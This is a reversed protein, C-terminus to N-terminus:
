RYSIERLIRCKVPGSGWAGVALEVLDGQQLRSELDCGATTRSWRQWKYCWHCLTRLAWLARHVSQAMFSSAPLQLGGPLACNLQGEHVAASAM